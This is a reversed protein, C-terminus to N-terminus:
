LVFLSPTFCTIGIRRNANKDSIHMKTLVVNGVGQDWQTKPQKNLQLNALIKQVQAIKIKHPQTM